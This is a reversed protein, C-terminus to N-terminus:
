ILLPSYILLSLSLSSQFILPYNDASSSGRFTSNTDYVHCGKGATTIQIWFLVPDVAMVM